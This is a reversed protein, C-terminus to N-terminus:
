ALDREDPTVDVYSGERSSSDLENGLGLIHGLKEQKTRLYRVNENNPAVSLSVRDVVRLGNEELGEFKSPNNTMLRITRVGLDVLIRSGIEYERSDAPLGLDLNAEVTDRGADQLAYAELKKALGIGRGEHGRLYIVVGEGAEAVLALALDLQPGCDCRISGFVDGTLCESHVRVLVGDKEEVDGRVLALYETRDSDSEYAVAVFTGHRTPIRAEAVRHVVPTSSVPEDGAPSSGAGPSKPGGATESMMESMKDPAPRCTRGLVSTSVSIM